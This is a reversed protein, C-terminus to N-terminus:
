IAVAHDPNVGDVVLGDVGLHKRRHDTTEAFRLRVRAGVCTPNGPPGKLQVKIFRNKTLQRARNDYAEMIGNNVSVLLDPCNDENFDVLSATLDSLIFESIRRAM